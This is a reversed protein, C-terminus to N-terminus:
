KTVKNETPDQNSWIQFEKLRCCTSSKFHKHYVKSFLVINKCKCQESVTKVPFNQVFKIKKKKSFKCQLPYFFFWRSAKQCTDSTEHTEIEWNRKFFHFM